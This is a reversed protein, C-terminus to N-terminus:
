HIEIFNAPYTGQCVETIGVLNCARASREEARRLNTLQGAYPTM